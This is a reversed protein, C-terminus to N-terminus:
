CDGVVPSCRLGSTPGNTTDGAVRPITSSRRSRRMSPVGCTTRYRRTSNGPSRWGSRRICRWWGTRRPSTPLGDFDGAAVQAIVSREEPTPPNLRLHAVGWWRDRVEDVRSLDFDDDTEALAIRFEAEFEALDEPAM